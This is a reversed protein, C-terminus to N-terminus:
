GRVNVAGAPGQQGIKKTAASFCRFTGIGGDQFDVSCFPFAAQQQKSIFSQLQKITAKQRAASVPGSPDTFTVQLTPKKTKSFLGRKAVNVAGAPGQQGIKKTAASFCRFTGIGGDQFDVSCFPFAAQQQKSIFSQLQKIAAKRRTASVPGSPDTFTVQLTPKKTKSFLGRKAVNLAGAPGQQGIKKTAASFCRFTGIGGDQFDVSCFPFAAQQQKSIFSQLQKIAAKQRTASVPGSPDTFTVKLATKKTKSFLGRADLEEDRESRAFIEELESALDVARAALESTDESRAAVSTPEYSVPVAVAISVLALLTLSTFKM